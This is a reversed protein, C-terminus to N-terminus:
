RQYVVTQAEFKTPDEISECLILTDYDKLTPDRPKLYAMTVGLREATERMQELMEGYRSVFAVKKGRCAEALVISRGIGVPAIFKMRGGLVMSQRLLDVGSQQHPKLTITRM